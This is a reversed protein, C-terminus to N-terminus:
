KQEGLKADYNVNTQTFSWKETKTHLTWKKTLAKADYDIEWKVIDALPFKNIVEYPTEFWDM